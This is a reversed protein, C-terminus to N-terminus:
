APTRRWVYTRRPEWRGDKWDYSRTTHEDGDLTLEHRVRSEAGDPGWFTQDSETANPGVERMPGEGIAGGAGYQAIVAVRRSPHWYVRFEWYTGLDRGGARGFLRGVMSQRGPGWQWTIGYAEAPEDDSRYRANDTIWTGGAATMATMHAVLWGPIPAPVSGTPVAGTPVAGLAAGLAVVLRLVADELLPTGGRDFRRARWAISASHRYPSRRILGNGAGARLAM